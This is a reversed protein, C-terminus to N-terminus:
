VIDAVYVCVCVRSDDSESGVAEEGVWKGAGRWLFRVTKYNVM